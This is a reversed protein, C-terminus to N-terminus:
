LKKVFSGQKDYLADASAIHWKGDEDHVVRPVALSHLLAYARAGTEAYLQRALEQNDDMLAAYLASGKGAFTGKYQIGKM